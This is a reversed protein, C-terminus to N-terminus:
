KIKWSKMEIEKISGSILIENNLLKSVTINEGKISVKGNEYKIIVKDTDLYEIKEYNSINIKNKLLIMKFEDDLLYDRVKRVLKM